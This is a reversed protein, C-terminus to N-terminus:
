VYKFMFMFMNVSGYITIISIFMNLCLCIYSVYKFMVIYPDTRRGVGTKKWEGVGFRGECRPRFACLLLLGRKQGNVDSVHRLGAHLQLIDFCSDFSKTSLEIRALISFLSGLGM